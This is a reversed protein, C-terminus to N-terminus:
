GCKQLIHLFLNYVPNIWNKRSLTAIIKHVSKNGITLRNSKHEIKTIIGLIEGRSFVGDINYLNDGKIYYLDNVIAVIRHIILRFDKSVVAVIDGQNLQESIPSITIFDGSRIIPEMSKGNASFRVGKGSVLLAQMVLLFNSNNM